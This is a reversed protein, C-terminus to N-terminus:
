HRLKLNTLAQLIHGHNKVFSVLVSCLILVDKSHPSFSDRYLALKEPTDQKNWVHPVAAIEETEEQAKPLAVQVDPRSNDSTNM